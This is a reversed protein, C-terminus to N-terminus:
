SRCHSKWFIEKNGEINEFKRALIFFFDSLRNIFILCADDVPHSAKVEWMLREARRAITRCLHCRAASENGGPLVFQRLPPLTGTIMDIKKELTEATETFVSTDSPTNTNTKDTALEAGLDFLRNQIENLFIITDEDTLGAALFGVFSNLEDVTGYAELRIDTKSIRTGGVLSTQGMDGTKTYIKM